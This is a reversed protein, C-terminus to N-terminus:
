FAIQVKFFTLISEEYFQAAQLLHGYDFHSRNKGLTPGVM